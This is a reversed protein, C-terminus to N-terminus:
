VNYIMYFEMKHIYPLQSEGNYPMKDAVKMMLCELFTIISGLSFCNDYSNDNDYSLLNYEDWMDMGIESSSQTSSWDDSLVVTVM